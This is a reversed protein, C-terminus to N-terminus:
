NTYKKKKKIKTSKAPATPEDSDAKVKKTKPKPMLISVHLKEGKKPKDMKNEKILKAAMQLKKGSIKVSLSKRTDIKKIKGAKATPKAETASSKKQLTKKSEKTAAAEAKKEKVLKKMEAEVAKKEKMKQAQVTERAKNKIELKFEDSAKFKGNSGTGTKNIIKGSDIYERFTKNFKKNSTKENLNYKECIFKFILQRSLGAVPVKNERFCTEIMENYKSLKKKEMEPEM